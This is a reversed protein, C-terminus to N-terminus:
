QSAVVNFTFQFTHLQDDRRFQTFARFRGPRPMLGDFTVDPGGRLTEPDVGIPLMFLRPGGDDDLVDTLDIPHAHVFDRM